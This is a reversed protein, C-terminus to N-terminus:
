SAPRWTTAACAATPREGMREARDRDTLLTQLARGFGVLDGPDELGHGHRIQDQIGGVRSALVPPGEVDGRGGDARVRPWSKQVIVDARRQLANVIAANEELDEM